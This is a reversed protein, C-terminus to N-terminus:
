DRREGIDRRDVRRDATVQRSTLDFVAIRQEGTILEINRMVYVSTGDIRLDILTTYDRPQFLDHIMAADSYRVTAGSNLSDLAEITAAVGDSLQVSELWRDPLFGPRKPDPQKTIPRARKYGEVLRWYADDRWVFTEKAWYVAGLVVIATAVIAVIRITRGLGM